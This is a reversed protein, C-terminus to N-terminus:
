PVSGGAPSRTTPTSCSRTTASGGAGSQPWSASRVTAVVTRGTPTQCHQCTAQDESDAYCTECMKIGDWTDYVPRSDYECTATTM